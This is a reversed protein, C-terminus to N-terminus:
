ETGRGQLNTVQISDNKAGLNPFAVDRRKEGNANFFSGNARKASGQMSHNHPGSKFLSQNASAGNNAPVM